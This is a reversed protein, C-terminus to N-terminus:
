PGAALCTFYASLQAFCDAEALSYAAGGELWKAHQNYMSTVIHIFAEYCSFFGHRGTLLYGELWGQCMHESLVEMVRGNRGVHDDNPLIEAESTRDTVEFVATLRNSETEDPGMIRFNANEQNLKLVDRLFRGLVRTSEDFSSGPHTVKVAYQRFDPMKLEKLLLGGNAHPNMGMRRNGQPALAALEPLLKGNDDFLEEAKYSRMWQELIKLHEPKKLDTM